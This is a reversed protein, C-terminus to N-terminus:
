LLLRWEFNNPRAFYLIGSYWPYPPLCIFMDTGKIDLCISMNYCFCLWKGIFLWISVRGVANLYWFSSYLCNNIAIEELNEKLCPKRLFQDGTSHLSEIGLASVYMAPPAHTYKKILLISELWGNQVPSRHCQLCYNIADHVSDICAVNWTSWINSLLIIFEFM